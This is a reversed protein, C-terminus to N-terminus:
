SDKYFNADTAPNYTAYIFGFGTSILNIMQDFAQANYSNNGFTQWQESSTNGYPATRFQVAHSISDYNYNWGNPNGIGRVNIGNPILGNSLDLFQDLTNPSDFARNYTLRIDQNEAVKFVVAVRPSAAANNIVSNYDVRVAGVIRMWSFPDYNAQVYGGAQNLKSIPEFLGDITGEYQSPNIFVDM